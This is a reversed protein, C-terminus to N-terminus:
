GAPFFAIGDADIASQIASTDSTVGDGKVGFERVNNM